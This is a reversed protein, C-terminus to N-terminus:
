LGICQLLKDFKGCMSNRGFTLTAAPSKSLQEGKLGWEVFPVAEIIDYGSTWTVTM